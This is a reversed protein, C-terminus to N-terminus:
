YNEFCIKAVFFDGAIMFQLPNIKNTGLIFLM